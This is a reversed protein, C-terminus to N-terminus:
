AQTIITNGVLRDILLGSCGASSVPVLRIDERESDGDDDSDNDSGSDDVSNKLTRLAITANYVDFPSNGEHDKTKILRGVKTSTSGLSETLDRREKELLLRAISINGNYLARHLANWGSEADQIYIDTAPHDLLAQAFSIANSAHSSAARLLLTLGAHDRSNVENKGLAYSTNKTNPVPGSVKRTKSTAHPSSGFTVPSGVGGTGSGKSPQLTYGASALQRRFKDVDNEWYYKWLLHSM